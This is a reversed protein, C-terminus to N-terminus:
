IENGLVKYLIANWYMFKNFFIGCISIIFYLDIFYLYVLLEVM